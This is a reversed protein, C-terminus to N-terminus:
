RVDLARAVRIGLLAARIDTSFRNRYASRVVVANYDWAGGRIVRYGCDAGSIWASGNTPAGDFNAHYCDEVWAFVNGVMDFLGFANPAFSGVPATQKDDWQSGCGICNANNKGIDDGWPYSTTTGARTAHEYEAETLLRYHKGTVKSLWAVYQQADDWNVFIVPRQERGWSVDSPRHTCDGATICTQWEDFTIAYKSVAFPQAITVLHQPSETSLHDKETAPSGMMFSGAPVVIMQPCYDNGQEAACERFSKNPDPKLAREADVTLVYPWINAAVFPRESSYWRWQEKIYAQNIWGILVAITGASLVCVGWFLWSARRQSRAAAELARRMDALQAREKSFRATEAEESANLLAHQADTIEPAAAKRQATWAKAADLEDGRLLLSEPRGRATWRAALEGLRTHERIWALDHHLAEALQALPRAIGRAIDFRVFQLRSLREPIDAEAVPKHIVPLLRKSLELTRNVEWVCRESKVAEPTVVFVVTDSQAILGGLRGEWDEGAAIDHRDIFPEFGALELGAVLEDAFEAADRRSYSVFIKLREAANGETM